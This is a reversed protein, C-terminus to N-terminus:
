KKSYDTLTRLKKPYQKLFVVYYLCFGVLVIPIIIGMSILVYHVIPENISIQFSPLWLYDDKNTYDRVYLFYDYEGPELKLSRYFFQEQNENFGNTFRHYQFTKFNDNSFILFLSEVGSESDSTSFSWYTNTSTSPQRPMSMISNIKPSNEDPSTTFTFNSLKELNHGSISVNYIKNAGITLRFQAVGNKDGYVTRSIGDETTIYLRPYSVIRSYNDRVPNTTVLQGEYLTSPFPNDVIKGPYDTYIDVEPDGLLCYTLLQKREAEYHNINRKFKYYFSNMYSIKSDYLARGQQFKKDEYFVKWFHRANGRNLAELLVDDQYYLTLRLGGIYGIAGGETDKILIEGINNDRSEVDYCSTICADAYVLSPYNANSCSLANTDTYITRQTGGDADEFRNYAGHGAFLVTSYGKNFESVFSTQNLDEYPVPPTYASTTRALHTINMYTPIYNQAIYSTLRAEDEGDPSSIFDVPESVGGALLTRNMWNGIEPNKEYKLTKNIMESLENATSAPLRGVYVEPIWNIEDLLLMREGYTGDQDLDWSGTLDAYYYDTPKLYQNGIPEAPLGPITITDPNYVYRIPILNEEADGALLVWRIGDSQYYSKIMNRIKEQDDRGSYSSYNSLIVTNVGKQNKWEALPKCANLFEENGDPVVIVMEIKHDYWTNNLSAYDIPPLFSIIPLTSENSALAENSANPSIDNYACFAVTSIGFSALFILVLVFKKQPSLNM